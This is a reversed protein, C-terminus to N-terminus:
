GRAAKGMPLGHKGALRELRDQYAQMFEDRTERIAPWVAYGAGTSNGRWGPFQRYQISGFEWGFADPFRASGFAIAAARQESLARITPALRVAQGRRGSRARRQAEKVVIDAAENGALRIEKPLAKDIARLDRQLGALDDIRGAFAQGLKVTAM